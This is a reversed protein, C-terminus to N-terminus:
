RSSCVVARAPARTHTQHHDRHRSSSHDNRAARWPRPSGSTCRATIMTADNEGPALDGTRHARQVGSSRPHVSDSIMPGNPRTIPTGACERRSEATSAGVRRDHGHSRRRHRRPGSPCAKPRGANHAGCSARGWRLGLRLPVRRRQLGAPTAGGRQGRVCAVRTPEHGADVLREPRSSTRPAGGPPALVDSSDGGCWQRRDRSGPGGAVVLRTRWPEDTSRSPASSGAHRTV